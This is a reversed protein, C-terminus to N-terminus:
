LIQRMDLAMELCLVIKNLNAQLVTAVCRKDGTDAEVAMNCPRHGLFLALFASISYIDVLLGTWTDLLPRCQQIEVELSEQEIL